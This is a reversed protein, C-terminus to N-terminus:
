RRKAFGQEDPHDDGATKGKGVRNTQAIAPQVGGGQDQDSEDGGRAAM